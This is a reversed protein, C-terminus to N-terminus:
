RNSLIHTLSQQPIWHSGDFRAAGALGAQKARWEQSSELVSFTARARSVQRGGGGGTVRGAAGLALKGGILPLPGTAGADSSKVSLSTLQYDWGRSGSGLGARKPHHAMTALASATALVATGLVDRSIKGQSSTPRDGAKLAAFDTSTTYVSWTPSPAPRRRGGVQGVKTPHAPQQSGSRSNAMLGGVSVPVSRGDASSTGGLHVNGSAALSTLTLAASSPSACTMGALHRQQLLGAVVQLHKQSPLSLYVPNVEAHGGVIPHASLPMAPHSDPMGEHWYKSTASPSFPHVPAHYSTTSLPTPPAHPQCTTFSPPTAPQYTSSSSLQPAPLPRQQATISPPTPQSAAPAPTHPGCSDLAPPHPVCCTAPMDAAPPNPLTAADQQQLICSMFLQALSGIRSLPTLSSTPTPNPTTCPATEARPNGPDSPLDSCAAAGSTLFNM